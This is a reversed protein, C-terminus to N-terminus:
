IREAVAQFFALTEQDIAADTPQPESAFRVITVARSPDVFLWQGHIGIACFAGSAHGTAYWKNRYRGEAFLYPFDGAKWAQPDGADLTDRVFSEPLVQRGEIAGGARMLEGVRALDHATVCIGGATRATGERDVTVTAEGTAGLPRWLLEAFVDAFRSGAAREVVVGLLDSNPSRYRFPGGHGGEGKPISVLFDLLSEQAAGTEMPNWLTARRYRAFSGTTDGYVEEFDLSVRMDMVHRVLADGYASGEAEPVYQAVPAELDLVGQGQLIGALLATLSKSISFVLHPAAIDAYPATWGLVPRGEKLVLFADTSTRELFGAMTEPADGVTLTERLFANSEPPTADPERRSAIGATPVLERVNQLSWRNFPATRWNALTVERRSFGYRQRFADQTM